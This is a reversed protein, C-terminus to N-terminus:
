GPHSWCSGPVPASSATTSPTKLLKYRGPSLVLCVHVRNIRDYIKHLNALFGMPEMAAFSTVIFDGDEIAALIEPFTRKEPQVRRAM